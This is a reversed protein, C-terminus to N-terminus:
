RRDQDRHALISEASLAVSRATKRERVSALWQSVSPRCALEELQELLFEQMSKREERARSALADRVAAPVKRITIQVAMSANQMRPKSM